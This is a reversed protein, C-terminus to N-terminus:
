TSLSQEYQIRDQCLQIYGDLEIIDSHNPPRSKKLIDKAKEYHVIAEKSLFMNTYLVGITAHATGIHPHDKPLLNEQISLCKQCYEIALEYKDQEQYINAMTRYITPYSPHDEPLSKLAKEAFELAQEVQNLYRYVTSICLYCDGFFHEPVAPSSTQYIELEKEYNALSTSYDKQVLAVSALGRYCSSLEITTLVQSNNLLQEFYEKPQKVNGMQYFLYGLSTLDNGLNQRDHEMIHKLQYDDQSCLSMQCIWLNETSDFECQKIRFIAGLGILLEEEGSFYSLHQIFAYPRTNEIQSDIHFEFLIRTLESTVTIQKAFSMSVQRNVSTSLFSNMSLFQGINERILNLEEVSIAQGRYVQVALKKHEDTLQSYLDTIFFRMSFLIHLDQFRLARNLLRYFCSERTYWWIAKDKQYDRDFEDIINLESDNDQYNEKCISILDKKANTPSHEKKSMNLLVDIFLQFYLFLANRTQLNDTNCISMPITSTDTKELFKQDVSFQKLLEDVNDFVGQVKSFNQSWQQNLNKLNKECLVYCTVFQQRDHISIIFQRTKATGSIILIYKEDQNSENEFYSQCEAPDNYLKLQNIIRRFKSQFDLKSQVKEDIWILTYVELNRFERNTLPSEEVVLPPEIAGCGM